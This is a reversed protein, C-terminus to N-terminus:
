TEAPLLGDAMLEAKIEEWPITDDKGQELRRLYERVTVADELDELWEILAKWDGISIVADTPNGQSDVVFRVSRLLEILEVAM